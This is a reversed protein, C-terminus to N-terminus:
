GDRQGFRMRLRDEAQRWIQERDFRDATWAVTRLDGTLRYDHM